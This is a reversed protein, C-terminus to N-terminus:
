CHRQRSGKRSNRLEMNMEKATVDQVHGRGGRFRSGIERHLFEEPNEGSRPAGKKLEMMDAAAATASERWGFCEGLDACSVASQIGRGNQSLDPLAVELILREQDRGDVKM